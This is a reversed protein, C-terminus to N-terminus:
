SFELKFHWTVNIWVFFIYNGSLKVCEVVRRLFSIAANYVHSHFVRISRNNVSLVFQSRVSYAFDFTNVSAATRKEKPNRLVVDVAVFNKRVKSSPVFIVGNGFFWYRFVLDLLLYGNPKCNRRTRIWQSKEFLFKGGSASVKASPARPVPLKGALTRFCSKISKSM